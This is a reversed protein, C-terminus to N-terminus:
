IKDVKEEIYDIETYQHNSDIWNWFKERAEEVTKAEIEVSSSFDVIFTKSM